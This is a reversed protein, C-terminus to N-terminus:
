SLINRSNCCVKVNWRGDVLCNSSKMSGHSHLKTSHLYTLGNAIDTFFSLKFMNDLKIADNM